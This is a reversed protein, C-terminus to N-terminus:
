RVYEEQNDEKRETEVRECACIISNVVRRVSPTSGHIVSKVFVPVADAGHDANTRIAILQDLKLVANENM